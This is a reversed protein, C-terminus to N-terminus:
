GPPTGAPPDNRSAGDEGSDASRQNQNRHDQPRILRLYEAAQDTLDVLTTGGGEIGAQQSALDKLQTYEGGPMMIQADGGVLSDMLDKNKIAQLLSVENGDGDRVKIDGAFTSDDDIIAKIRDNMGEADSMAIAERANERQQEGQRAGWDKLGDGMGFFSGIGGLVNAVDGVVAGGLHRANDILAGNNEWMGREEIPGGTAALERAETNRQIEADIGGEQTILQLYRRAEPKTMKFQPNMSMFLEVAGETQGYNGDATAWMQVARQGQQEMMKLMSGMVADGGKTELAEPVAGLLRSTELGLDNVLWQQVVPNSTANQFSTAASGALVPDESFIGSTALGFDGAAEGSAGAEIGIETGRQYSEVFQSATMMADPNASLQQATMLDTQVSEISQGGKEVQERLTRVSTAVDINMSKLNEAMFDTVTEFEKGTYGEQLASQMIKRSQEMSIFPNMAMSRVGMEFGFGESFGGGREMGQAAHQQYWQGGSQVAMGAGVALGAVGAGKLAFKAAGGLASARSAMSSAAAAAQAAEAVAAPDNPDAAQMLRDAEAQAQAARQEQQAAFRTATSRVSGIGTTAMDLLGTRGGQSTQAYLTGLFGQTQQQFQEARSLWDPNGDSPNPRGEGGGRGPSNRNGPGRADGGGGGDGRGGGSDADRVNRNPPRRSGDGPTRDRRRPAPPALVDSRDEGGQQIVRPDLSRIGAQDIAQQAALNAYQRPNTRRLEDLQAEMGAMVDRSPGGPTSPWLSSTSVADNRGQNEPAFIPSALSGTAAGGFRAASAEADQLLRPLERLYEVYDASAKATAQMNTQLDATSQTLQQLRQIAEDPLDVSIRAAVTDDGQVNFDGGPTTM